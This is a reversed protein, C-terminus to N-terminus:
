GIQIRFGGSEGGGQQLWGVIRSAQAREESEHQTRRLTETQQEARNARRGERVALYVAVVTAGVTGIAALWNPLTDNLLSAEAV